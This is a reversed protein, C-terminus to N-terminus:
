MIGIGVWLFVNATPFLPGFVVKLRIRTPNPQGQTPSNSPKMIISMDNGVWCLKTFRLCGLALCRNVTDSQSLIREVSHNLTVSTYSALIVLGSWGSVLLWQIANTGTEYVTPKNSVMKAPKNSVIGHNFCVTNSVFPSIGALPKSSNVM